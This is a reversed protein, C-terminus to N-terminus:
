EHKSRIALIAAQDDQHAADRNETQILLTTERDKIILEIAKTKQLIRVMNKEIVERDKRVKDLLKKEVLISDEMKSTFKGLNIMLAPVTHSLKVGNKIDYEGRYNMMKTIFSLKKQILQDFYALKKMENQKERELAALITKYQKISHTLNM